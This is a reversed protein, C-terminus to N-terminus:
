ARAPGGLVRELYAVERQRRGYGTSEVLERARELHRRAAEGDDQQWCLRTWELHVDALHLLMHGREAIEEAERLDSAAGDIGDPSDAGDPSGAGGPSGATLRRLAARALFGRPMDDEQGAQHLGDVARDLHEASASFDPSGESTVALGLHARGLSLHDLAITLLSLGAQTAWGLTQGAREGIEECAARYRAVAEPTGGGGPMPPDFPSEGGEGQSLLLDCYRYGALSYLRPRQPQWEAQLAEAERFTSASEQWRGAQHLADALIARSNMRVFADGSKDVLEVSEEGVAVASAVEGLTLHLESLNGAGRAAQEWNKQAKMGDTAARMPQTAESLRGLARLVFGAASLVWAQWAASLRPDPRGWPREFFGALATLHAGFAGLKKWSFAEAGRDIRPLLVDDMAEQVRGARCGHVVAAYLPMMAALTEPRDDTAQKYHEYLREHGARWAEPEEGALREGFYERVLPHADVSGDDANPLLLRAQRLRALAQRWRTEDGAALGETLDAVAPEARLAALAAAEAPRDFLGVLRLVKLDPGEGLWREYSAMVRRAHGGQEIGEDLLAVERQRRVDGDCVDRLWTGLLTLALGHGGFEESARRCEAPSGKVGLRGLLEAGAAAPLRDLDVSETGARGAVDAVALRTTIVCLGPNQAALEKILAQVAPDRLRGTQAGPPHQLPELGDLVLLTRAARVRRALEVGKEWPSVIAEGEYGLWRLAYDVFADGSAGTADSGQSYFSWGLVREAGRWDDGELRDLWANVLASKGAGGLAVFSVVHTAPDDWAQDLRALEDERAVFHEGTAPLKSIAVRPEVPKAAAPPVACLENWQDRRSRIEKRLDPNNGYLTHCAGCLPAANDLEDAGGDAQPVIHHIDVKRQRDRCWCCTFHARRKVELKIAESFAM